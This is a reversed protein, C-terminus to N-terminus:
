VHVQAFEFPKRRMDEGDLEILDFAYMFVSEDAQWHRILEFCAIGDAGCAVAERRHHM